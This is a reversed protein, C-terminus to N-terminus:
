RGCVGSLLRDEVKRKLFRRQSPMMGYDKRETSTGIAALSHAEHMHTM